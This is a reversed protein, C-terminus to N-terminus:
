QVKPVIVSERHRNERRCDLRDEKATWLDHVDFTIRKKVAKRLLPKRNTWVTATLPHTVTAKGFM